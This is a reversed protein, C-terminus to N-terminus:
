SFLHRELQLLDTNSALALSRSSLRAFLIVPISIQIRGAHDQLRKGPQRGEQACANPKPPPDGKNRRTKKV